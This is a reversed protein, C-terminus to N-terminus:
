AFLIVEMCFVVPAFPKMTQSFVFKGQLSQVESQDKGPDPIVGLEFFVKLINPGEFYEEEFLSMEIVVFYYM